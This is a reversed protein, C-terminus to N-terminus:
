AKERCASVCERLLDSTIGYPLKPDAELVSNFLKIFREWRSADRRDNYDILDLTHWFPIDNLLLEHLVLRKNGEPEHMWLYHCRVEIDDTFSVTCPYTNLPAMGGRGEYVERIVSLVATVAPPLTTHRYKLPPEPCGLTTGDPNLTVLTLRGHCEAVLANEGVAQCPGFGALEVRRATLLPDPIRSTPHDPM